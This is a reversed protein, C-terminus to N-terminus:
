RATLTAEEELEKGAIKYKHYIYEAASSREQSYILHDEASVLPNGIKKFDPFSVFCQQEKDWLYCDYFEVGQNGYRGLSILLDKYGDFDVDQRVLQVDIENGPVDEQWRDYRYSIVQIPKESRRVEATFSAPLRRGLTDIYRANVVRLTVTDPRVEGKKASVHYPYSVTNRVQEAERVKKGETCSLLLAAVAFILYTKKKM